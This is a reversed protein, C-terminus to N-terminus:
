HTGFFSHVNWLICFDTEGALFRLVNTLLGVRLGTVLNFSSGIYLFVSVRLFMIPGTAHTFSPRQSYHFILLIPSDLSRHTPPFALSLFLSIITPPLTSSTFFPTHLVCTTFLSAYLIETPFVPPYLGSPLGLRLHYFLILIFTWCYSEFAHIQNMQSLFREIQPSIHAAHHVIQNWLLPLMVAM